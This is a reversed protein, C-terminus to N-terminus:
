AEIILLGHGVLPQQAMPFFNLYLSCPSVASIVIYLKLKCGEVVVLAPTPGIPGIQRLRIGRNRPAEREHPIRANTIKLFLLLNAM